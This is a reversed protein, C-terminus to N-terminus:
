VTLPQREIDPVSQVFAEVVDADFQSGACAKLEEIAEGYSMGPRYPRESTMADFADAVSIIRAGLPISAGAMGTPYGSGDWREHHYQVYPVVDKLFDLSSLINAAIDPHRQIMVYEDPELRGPKNLIASDIGIKGIDHLLAAIRLDELEGASLGLAKGAALAYETVASSHGYTYPDKADVASALAGITGLFTNELNVYLKANDIAMALQGAFSAVVKQNETSFSEDSSLKSVNLVGTVEGKCVLPVSLASRAGAAYPENGFGDDDADVLVLPRRNAAVWGAIGEGLEVRTSAVVEDPIGRACEIRLSNDPQILMISGAEASTVNMVEALAGDLLAEFHTDRGLAWALTNLATLERVRQNREEFLLANRFAISAESQLIRLFADDQASFMEGSLKPGLLLGGLVAGDSVLPVMVRFGLENLLRTSAHDASPDDAYVIARRCCDLLGQANEPNLDKGTGVVQVKEAITHVAQANTLRMGTMLERTLTFELDSLDLTAAMAAGLRTLLEQPDYTKRYFLADTSHELIRRIPQFLFIAALSVGAFLVDPHIGLRQTLEARALVAAAVLVLSLMGVLLLYAASRLAVVRIDMFRHKIMAYSTFGVLLLSSFTNLESLRYSGSLLPILLGLLLATVTFMGFGLFLYKLQAKERGDLRAYKRALVVVILLVGLVTWAAWATFLPGPVVDTSYESFEVSSAVLPTLVTVGSMVASLAFFVRWGWSRSSTEVPFLVAFYLLTAGMAVALGLTLRNFFLSVAVFAPQDSIFACTLWAVILLIAAAFVRHAASKRNRVFVAVALATHVAGVILLSTLRLPDM